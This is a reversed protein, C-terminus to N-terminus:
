LRSCYKNYYKATTQYKNITALAKMEGIFPSLSLALSLLHTTLALAVTLTFLLLNLLFVSHLLSVSPKTPNYQTSNLTQIM